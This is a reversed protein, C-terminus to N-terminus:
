CLGPLPVLRQLVSARSTALVTGSNAFAEARIGAGFTFFPGGFSM